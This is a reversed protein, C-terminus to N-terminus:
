RTHTSSIKQSCEEFLDYVKDLSEQSLNKDLEKMAVELGEFALYLGEINDIQNYASSIKHCAYNAAASYKEAEENFHRIQRQTRKLYRKFGNISAKVRNVNEAANLAATENYLRTMGKTTGLFSEHLKAGGKEITSTLAVVKDDADITAKVFSATQNEVEALTKGKSFEALGAISAMTAKLFEGMIDFADGIRIPPTVLIGQADTKSNPPTLEISRSGALGFFEITAKTGQPLKVNSDTVVFDVFIKDYDTQIKTVHGIDVGLIRVPSGIVISDIDSFAIHYTQGIDFTHKIIRSGTGVLLVSLVIFIVFEIILSKKMSVINYYKHIKTFKQPFHFM